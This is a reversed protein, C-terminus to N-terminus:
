GETVQVGFETRAPVLEVGQGQPHEATPQAYLAVAPEKKVAGWKLELTATSIGAEGAVMRDIFDRISGNIVGKAEIEKVLNVLQTEFTQLDSEITLKVKDRSMTKALAVAADGDVLKYTQKFDKRSLTGYPLNISKTKADPDNLLLRAMQDLLFRKWNARKQVRAAVAGYRTAVLQVEAKLAANIDALDSEDGALYKLLRDAFALLKSKEASAFPGDPGDTLGLDVYDAGIEDFNEAIVAGATQVTAELLAAVAPEADATAQMEKIATTM